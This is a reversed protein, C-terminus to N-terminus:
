IMSLVERLSDPKLMKISITPITVELLQHAEEKRIAESNSAQNSPTNTQPPAVMAQNQIAGPQEVEERMLNLVAEVSIQARSLPIILNARNKRM